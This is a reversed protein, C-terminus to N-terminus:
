LGTGVRVTRGIPRQVGWAAVQGGAGEWVEQVDRGQGPPSPTVGRCTRRRTASPTATRGSPGGIRKSGPPVRSARARIGSIVNFRELAWPPDLRLGRLPSSPMETRTAAERQMTQTVHSYINMFLSADAHGLREAAVKPPVGSALMLTASTHRLGHATLRPLGLEKTYTALLRSVRQPHYPGGEPKTFVFDSAEFAASAGREKAQLKKHRRLVDELYEDLDITRVADRSKGSSTVIEHDLTSVFDVVRVVHGPLDVHVLPAPGARRDAPGLGDLLGM